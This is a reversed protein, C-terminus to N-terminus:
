RTAMTWAFCFGVRVVLRRNGNLFTVRGAYGAGISPTNAFVRSGGRLGQVTPHLCAVWQADILRLM